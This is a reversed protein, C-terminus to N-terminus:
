ENKPSEGGKGNWTKTSIIGFELNKKSVHFKFLSCLDIMKCVVSEGPSKLDM